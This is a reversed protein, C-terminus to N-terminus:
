NLLNNNEIIGINIIPLANPSNEKIASDINNSLNIVKGILIGYKIKFTLYRTQKNMKPINVIKNITNVNLLIDMKNQVEINKKPPPGIDNKKKWLATYLLCLISINPEKLFTELM